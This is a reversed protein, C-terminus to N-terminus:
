HSRPGSALSSAAPRGERGGRRAKPCRWRGPWFETLEAAVKQDAIEAVGMAFDVGEVGVGKLELAVDLDMGADAVRRATKPGQSEPGSGIVSARVGEVEGVADVPSVLPRNPAM